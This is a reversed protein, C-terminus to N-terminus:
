GTSLPIVVDENYGDEMCEDYKTRIDPQENVSTYPRLDVLVEDVSTVFRITVEKNGFHNITYRQTDFLVRLRTRQERRLFLPLYISENTSNRVLLSCIFVEEAILQNRRCTLSSSTAM